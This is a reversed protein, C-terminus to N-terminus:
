EMTARRRRAVVGVGFMQYRRRRRLAGFALMIALIAAAGGVMWPWGFGTVEDAGMGAEATVSPGVPDPKEAMSALVSSLLSGLSEPDELLIVDHTAPDFSEGDRSQDYVDPGSVAVLAALRSRAEGIGVALVRVNGNKLRKAAEAAATLHEDPDGSLIPEGDSGLRATPEGDTVHVVVLASDARAAGLLHHAEALAAEWNSGNGGRLHEAYGASASQSGLNGSPDGLAQGFVGDTGMTGPTVASLPAQIRVDKDYSVVSVRADVGSAEDLADLVAWAAITVNRVQADRDAADTGYRVSSSADLVLVVEVPINSGGSASGGGAATPIAVAVTNTTVAVATLFIVAPRM